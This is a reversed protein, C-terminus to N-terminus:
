GDRQLESDLEAQMGHRGTLGGDGKGVPRARLQHRVHARLLSGYCIPRGTITLVSLSPTAM